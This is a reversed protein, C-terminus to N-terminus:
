DSELAILVDRTDRGAQRISQEADREARTLLDLAAKGAATMERHGDPYRMTPGVAFWPRRGSRACIAILAATRASDVIEDPNLVTRSRGQTVGNWVRHAERWDADAGLWDLFANLKDHHANDHQPYLQWILPAGAWLARVLSDEGRVLNLDCAHLMDDFGAQDTHPLATHAPTPAGARLAAQVAAQARGPTVMLHAGQEAAQELLDPLASQLAAIGEALRGELVAQQGRLARALSLADPGQDTGLLALGEGPRSAHPRGRRIRWVIRDGEESVIDAAGAVRHPLLLVAALDVVGRVPLADLRQLVALLLDHRAEVADPQLPDFFGARLSRAPNM